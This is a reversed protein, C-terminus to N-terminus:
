SNGTYALVIQIAEIGTEYHLGTPTGNMQLQQWGFKMCSAQYVVGLGKPAGSSLKIWLGEIELNQGTTGALGKNTVPQQWGQNQVYAAYEVTILPGSGNDIWIRIAEIPANNGVAGALAGNSVVPQWGSQEISVEYYINM